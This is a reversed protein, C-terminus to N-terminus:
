FLVLTKTSEGSSYVQVALVVSQLAFRKEVLIEDKEREGEM